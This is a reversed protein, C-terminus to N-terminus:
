VSGSIGTENIKFFFLPVTGPHMNRAKVMVVEEDRDVFYDGSEPEVVMYWNYCTNIFEPKVRDFIAKCRRYFEEDEAIRQAEEEATWQFQPFIRGSIATRAPKTETM